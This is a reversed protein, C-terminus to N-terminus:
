GTLGTFGGSNIMNQIDNINMDAGTDTSAAATPNSLVDNAGSIMKSLQNSTGGFIQSTLENADPSSTTSTSGSPQSAAQTDTAAPESAQQQSEAIDDQTPLMDLANRIFSRGTTIEVNLSMSQFKVVETATGTFGEYTADVRITDGIRVGPVEFMYIDGATTKGVQQGNLYITVEAGEVPLKDYYVNGSVRLSFTEDAAQATVDEPTVTQTPLQPATAQMSMQPVITRGLLSPMSFSAVSAVLAVILVATLLASMIVNNVRM